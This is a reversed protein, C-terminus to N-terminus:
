KNKGKVRTFYKSLDEDSFYRIKNKFLCEYPRCMNDYIAYIEFFQGLNISDILKSNEKIVHVWGDILTLGLGELEDKRPARFRDGVKYKM